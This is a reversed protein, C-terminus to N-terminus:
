KKTTNWYILQILLQNLQAEVQNGAVSGLSLILGQERCTKLTRNIIDPNLTFCKQDSICKRMVFQSSGLSNGSLGSVGISTLSHRCFGNTWYPPIIFDLCSVSHRLWFRSQFRLWFSGCTSRERFILATTGYIESTPIIWHWEGTAFDALSGKGMSIIRCIWKRFINFLLRSGAIPSVNCSM